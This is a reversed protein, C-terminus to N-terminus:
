PTAPTLLNFTDLDFRHLGFRGAAFLAVRGALEIGYAWGNMPFYAQAYPARPDDLNMVLLGGPVSFLARGAITGELQAWADVEAEGLTALTGGGLDLITLRHSPAALASPTYVSRWPEGHSVIVHGAGDLAIKEVTRDTFLRTAQLHALGGSLLLQDVATEIATTNWVSDRTLITAGEVAILEGPINITEGTGPSAPDAWDTGRFFFRAHPRADASVRYPKKFTTYLVSGKALLSVAEEDSAMSVSGGLVPAGRLDVARLDHHQWYRHREYSYMGTQTDITTPDVETCSTDGSADQACTQIAGSCIEPDTTGDTRALQECLIQGVNYTCAVPEGRTNSCSWPQMAPSTWRVTVTGEVVDEPVYKVFVLASGVVEIGSAQYWAGWGCDFCDAIPSAIGARAYAYGPLPLETTELRGAPVPAIPSSLDWAEVVATYGPQEGPLSARTVFSVAALKDGVKFVRAGARVRITALPPAEVDGALRVVELADEPVTGAHGGWYRTWYSVTHRRVAYAGFVLVGAYDPALEIRGLEAPADPRTADFLGLEEESLNAATHAGPDLVFSRRVPTSERMAGRRTLTTDSFTFIQVGSAYGTDPDWGSFPLLVMGTELQGTPAAIATAGELVSFARDDYSAESWSNSLAVGARALLPSPNELDTIDYLSVSQTRGGVDDKGIGILRTSSSVARFWDNWGSVVFASREAVHGAADISFAHFPDRREYTVFFARDELFLTGFLQENPGFTAHDVRVLVRFDAADFTELHNVNSASGWTNSSVVRLIDGRLDMKTKDSVLGEVTVADGLTMTGAPDSIDIMAVESRGDHRLWDSRAVLLREPTAQIDTVYGGLDLETRPVLAGNGSVSFSKVVTRDSLTAAVYLSEQGGGRTLRSTKIFGPVRARATEVPASPDSADVAVVIGGTYSEPRMDERAGFYGQWNNLLLYLRSEVQYMEVPTGAITLKGVIRPASPDSADIIQLGRYSNLNLILGGAGVRYIDGEEVTRPVEGTPAGAREDLGVNRGPLAGDMGDASVFATQGPVPPRPPDPPSTLDEVCAAGALLVGLASLIESSRM